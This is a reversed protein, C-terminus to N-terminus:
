RPQKTLDAAVFLANGRDAIRAAPYVVVRLAGFALRLVARRGPGLRAPSLSTERYFAFPTASTELAHASYGCRELLRRATSPAFDYLHVPLEPYEWVGTRRALLRYTLRPYWGEVNPFTAAVVGGPALLRAAIALEHRPDPLHELM